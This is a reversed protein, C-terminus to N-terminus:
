SVNSNKRLYEATEDIYGKFTELVALIGNKEHVNESAAGMQNRYRSIETLPLASVEGMSAFTAGLISQQMEAQKVSILTDSQIHTLDAFWKNAAERTQDIRPLIDELLSWLDAHAQQPYARVLNQKTTLCINSNKVGALLALATTDDPIDGLQFAYPNQQMYGQTQDHLLMGGRIKTEKLLVLLALPQTSGSFFELLRHAEAAERDLVEEKLRAIELLILTKQGAQMHELLAVAATPDTPVASLLQFNADVSVGTERLARLATEYEARLGDIGLDTIHQKIRHEKGLFNGAMEQCAREAGRLTFIDTNLIEHNTRGDGASSCLTDMGYSLPTLQTGLAAILLFRTNFKKPLIKM